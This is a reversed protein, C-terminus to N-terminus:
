KTKAQRKTAKRKFSFSRGGTFLYGNRRSFIAAHLSESLFILIFAWRTQRISFAVWSLKFFLLFRGKSIEAVFVLFPPLSLVM